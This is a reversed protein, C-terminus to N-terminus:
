DKLLLGPFIEATQTEKQHYDNIKSQIHTLFNLRAQLALIAHRTIEEWKKQDEGALNILMQLARPLHETDDLEIHRNLYYLLPKISAKQEPSITKELQRVLPTFLSSTIAERGYVFAAALIHTEQSFFGFTTYIFQQIAHPLKLDEAAHILIEHQSLHQLFNQIPQTNAGIARMATLYLEFHSGYQSDDETRDSEEEVLIRSILHASFADKPPFWPARTTVIRNQLEKLLCMFDWVAFVHHEMFIRLDDLSHICAYLSHQKINQILPALQQNVSEIPHMAIEKITQTVPLKIFM